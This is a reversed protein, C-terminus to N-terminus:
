SFKQMFSSVIYSKKVLVVQERRPECWEQLQIYSMRKQRGLTEPVQSEVDSASILLRRGM